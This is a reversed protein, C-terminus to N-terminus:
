IEKVFLNSVDMGMCKLLKFGSQTVEGCIQKM